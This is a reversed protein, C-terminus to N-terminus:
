DGLADSAATQGARLGSWYVASVSGTFGRGVAPTGLMGILEGSGYLGSIVEGDVDLIRGHEDTPVGVFAKAAGPLIEAVVVPADGFPHLYHSPKGFDLDEGDEAYADYTAVAESVDVGLDEGASHIEEYWTMAGLELLDDVGLLESDPDNYSPRVASLLDIASEPFFLLWRPDENAELMYALEMTQAASEDILRQGTADLGMAPPVHGLWIAELPDEPDAMAHVYTGYNGANQWGGGLSEVMDHGLGLADPHAEALRQQGLGPRDARVRELDRAFGGTAVIVASATLEFSDGTSLETAVVGCVGDDGELLREVRVGTRLDEIGAVLDEVFPESLAHVRPTDGADQAPVPPIFEAGYRDEFDGLIGASDEIFAQVVADPEENTFDPWESLAIEVTDTVGVSSQQPTGVALFRGAYGAGGGASDAMELVVTSAGAEQAQRAAVLGSAGAGIVVVDLDPELPPADVCALLLLM